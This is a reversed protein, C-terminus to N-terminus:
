NKWGCDLCFQSGDPNQELKGSKCDPCEYVAYMTGGGGGKSLGGKRGKKGGSGGPAKKRAKLVVVVIGIIIGLGVLILIPVPDFPQPQVVPPAVTPPKQIQLVSVSHTQSKASEYDSSGGDFYAFIQYESVQNLIVNQRFVGDFKTPIFFPKGDVMLANTGDRIWIKGDRIPSGDDEAWLTGSFTVTEGVQKPSLIDNLRLVTPTKSPPSPTPTSTTTDEPNSFTFSTTASYSGYNATTKYVGDKWSGSTMSLSYSGDARGSLYEFNKMPTVQDVSVFNGNPAIIKITVDFAKKPDSSINVLGSIKIVDDKKYSTSDLDITITDTSGFPSLAFPPQSDDSILDVVEFKVTGISKPEHQVDVLFQGRDYPEVKILGEWERDSTIAAYNTEIQGMPNTITLTVRDGTGQRIVDGYIKVYITKGPAAKHTYNNIYASGWENSVSVEANLGKGTVIITGKM